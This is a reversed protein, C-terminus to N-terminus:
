VSLKGGLQSRHTDSQAISHAVPPYKCARAVTCLAVLECQLCWREAHSWQSSDTAATDGTNISFILRTATIVM